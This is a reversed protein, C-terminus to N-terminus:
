VLEGFFVKELNKSDALTEVSGEMVMKGQAIIYGRHAVKLLSKLNHEVIVISTGFVKNVEEIKEFVQQVIKPALGISPEDCILLKPNMMLARALSLIQQEGGSMNYALTRFKKKLIPFFDVLEDIRQNIMKKDTWLFAGMRLNEEITMSSFVRKGQGVFSMGAKVMAVPSPHIIKGDFEVTGSLKEFLGFIAKLLVTKGAGNPGMLILIEGDRVEFDVGHIIKNHGFQVSLGRVQLLSQSM